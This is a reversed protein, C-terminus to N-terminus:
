SDRESVSYTRILLKFTFLFKEYSSQRIQSAITINVAYWAQSSYHFDDFTYNVVIFGKVSLECSLFLYEPKYSCAVTLM